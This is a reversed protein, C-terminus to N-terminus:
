VQRWSNFHLDNFGMELTHRTDVIHVSKLSCAVPFIYWWVKRWQPTSYTMPVTGKTPSRPTTRSGQPTTSSLASPEKGLPLCLRPMWLSNQPLIWTFEQLFSHFSMFVINYIWALMWKKQCTIISSIAIPKRFIWDISKLFICLYICLHM